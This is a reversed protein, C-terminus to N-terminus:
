RKEYCVESNVLVSAQVLWNNVPQVTKSACVPCGNNLSGEFIYECDICLKAKTMHFAKPSHDKM